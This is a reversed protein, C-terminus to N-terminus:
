FDDVYGVINVPDGSFESSDELFDETIPEPDLNNLVMEADVGSEM